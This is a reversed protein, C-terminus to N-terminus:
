QVPVWERMVLRVRLKKERNELNLRQPLRYPGTELYRSYEMSWGDQVLTSLNGHEDLSMEGPKSGPAPTGKIWYQLGNIPVHWGLNEEMLIEASDAQLLRNDATHMVVTDPGGLLEFAGQGLPPILNIRYNDTEQQWHLTASWAERDIQVSIRGQMRWGKLQTLTAEQTKWLDAKGEEPIRQRSACATLLFLLLFLPLTNPRNMAM